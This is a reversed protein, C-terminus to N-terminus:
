YFLYNLSREYLKCLPKVSYECLEIRRRIYLFDRQQVTYMEFIQAFIWSSHRRRGRFFNCLLQFKLNKSKTPTSRRMPQLLARLQRSQLAEEDIFMTGYVSLEIFNHEVTCCYCKKLFRGLTLCVDKQGAATALADEIELKKERFLDGNLTLGSHAYIAQLIDSRM